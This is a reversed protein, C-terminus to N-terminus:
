GIQLNMTHGDATANVTKTSHEWDVKGGAKEILHRFPTMPVGNDVRTPVDFTVYENNYLVAFTGLKPM